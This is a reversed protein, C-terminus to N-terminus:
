CRCEVNELTLVAALILYVFALDPVVDGAIGLSGRQSQQVLGRLDVFVRGM